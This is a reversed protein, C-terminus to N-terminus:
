IELNLELEVGIQTFGQKTLTKYIPMNDNIGASACIVLRPCDNDRAWAAAADLLQEAVGTGRFPPLVYFVDGTAHLDNSFLMRESSVFIGGVLIGAANRAGFGIKYPNNMYQVAWMAVRVRDFDIDHYKTSERYMCEACAIVEGM